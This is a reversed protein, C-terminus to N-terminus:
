GLDGGGWKSLAMNNSMPSHKIGGGSALRVRVYSYVKTNSGRQAQIEALFDIANLYFPFLSVRERERERERKKELSPTEGKYIYICISSLCERRKM